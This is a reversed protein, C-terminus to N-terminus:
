SGHDPSLFSCGLARITTELYQTGSFPCLPKEFCYTIGTSYCSAYLPFRSVRAIHSGLINDFVVSIKDFFELALTFFNGGALCLVIQTDIIIIITIFQFLYTFKFEHILLLIFVDYQLTLM